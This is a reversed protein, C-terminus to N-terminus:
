SGRSLGTEFCVTGAEAILQANSRTEDIDYDNWTLTCVSANNGDYINIGGLAYPVSREPNTADYTVEGARTYKGVRWPGPTPKSDTTM